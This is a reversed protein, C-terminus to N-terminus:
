NLLENALWTAATKLVGVRSSSIYGTHVAMASGAHRIASASFDCVIDGKDCIEATFDPDFVDRRSNMGHIYTRVGQGNLRSDKGFLQAQSNVVRDGDGLLLTGVIVDTADQDGQDDLRLEAQRIAMAGQSYGALIVDSNPCSSAISRVAAMTRRVGNELSAVYRVVNVVYLALAAGSPLGVERATPKLLDVSAATYDVAVRRTTEGDARFSKELTGAMTAVERGLGGADSKKQGSGRVGVIVVDENGCLAATTARSKAVAVGPLGVQLMAVVSGAVCATRLVSNPGSRSM